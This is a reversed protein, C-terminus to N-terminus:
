QGFMRRALDGLRPRAALDVPVDAFRSTDVVGEKLWRELTHRYADEQLNYLDNHGMTDLVILRGRALRPMLNRRTYELPSSVDLGGNLVLTEVPSVGTRLSGPITRIPWGGGGPPHMIWMAVPSGIVSDPERDDAIHPLRSHVDSSSYTKSFNDGWEVLGSMTQDFTASLYALGAYDGENASVYADFVQAATGNNYLQWFTMVRVRGPDVTVGEWTVPLSALARRMAGLLDPERKALSPDRNWIESYQRLVRAIVRPEWVAMADPGTSGSIFTRNVNDPHGLGYIHAVHCGYSHGWLNIENYGLARRAADIDEAVDLITYSDMHIGESELRRFATLSARRLRAIYEPGLPDGGSTFAEAIEPAALRVSGDIGRYGVMVVDRGEFFWPSFGAVNTAGPGGRLSFLPVPDERRAARVRLVPLQILRSGPDSRNERVVLTGYDAALTDKGAVLTGPSLVLEGEAAAEVEAGAPFPGIQAAESITSAM